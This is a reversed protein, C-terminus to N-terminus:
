PRPDLHGYHAPRAAAIIGDPAFADRQALTFLVM